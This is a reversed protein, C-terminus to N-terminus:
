VAGVDIADDSLVAAPAVYGVERFGLEPRLPDVFEFSTVSSLACRRKRPDHFLRKGQARKHVMWIPLQHGVMIIDGGDVSLAAETMADTMRNAIREYPEGWSPRFPNIAYRWMTPIKWAAGKGHMRRGEFANYPEMLREDIQPALELANAIPAASEQARQLPSVILRSVTRNRRAFYTATIEAMHVGLESLGYGALRGYLVREPNLVEGHRVLHIQSAVM